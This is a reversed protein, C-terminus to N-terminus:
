KKKDEKEANPQPDQKKEEVPAKRKKPVDEIVCEVHSQELAYAVRNKVKVWEEKPLSIKKSDISLEVTKAATPFELPIFIKKM